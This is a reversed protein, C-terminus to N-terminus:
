QACALTCNPISRSSSVAPNIESTSPPLTGSECPSDYAITNLSGMPTTRPIAGHFAGMSSPNLANTAGNAAPFVTMKLTQAGCGRARIVHQMALLIFGLTGIQTGFRVIEEGGEEAIGTER